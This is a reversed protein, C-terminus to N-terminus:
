FTTIALPLYHAGFQCWDTGTSPLIGIKSHLFVVAHVSLPMDMLGTFCSSVTLDLFFTPSQRLVGPCAPFVM